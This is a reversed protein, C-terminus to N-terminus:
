EGDTIAEGSVGYATTEGLDDILKFVEDPTASLIKSVFVNGDSRPKGDVVRLLAQLRNSIRQRVGDERVSAASIVSELRELEMLLAIAPDEQEPLIQRRLHEALATPTPHDFALTTSLRLGTAANLHNRFRLAM